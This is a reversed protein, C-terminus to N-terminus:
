PWKPACVCRIYDNQTLMRTPPDTTICKFEFSNWVQIAHSTIYSQYLIGSTHISLNHCQISHCAWSDFGCVNITFTPPLHKSYWKIITDIYKYLYVHQSYPSFSQTIINLITLSSCTNQYKYYFVCTVCAAIRGCM